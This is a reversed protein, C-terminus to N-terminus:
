YRLSYRLQYYRFPSNEPIVFFEETFDESSIKEFGCDGDQITYWFEGHPSALLDIKVDPRNPTVPIKFTSDNENQDIVLIPNVLPEEFPNATDDWAYHEILFRGDPALGRMPDTDYGSNSATQAFGTQYSAEIRVGDLWAKDQGASGSKDKSYVWALPVYKQNGPIDVTVRTWEVEGSIEELTNGDVQFRLFDRGEESSVKWWFSIKCPAVVYSSVYSLHDDGLNGTEAAFPESYVTNRQGIWAQQGGTHIQPSAYHEIADILPIRVKIQVPIHVEPFSDDVAKLSFLKRHIGLKLFDSNIPLELRSEGNELSILSNEPHSYEGGSLSFAAAEAENNVTLEIAPHNVDPPQQLQVFGPSVQVMPGEYARLQVEARDDQIQTINLIMRSPARAYQGNGAPSGPELMQEEQFLDGKEFIAAENEIESLNDAQVLRVLKVPTTSNDNRLQNTSSNLGAEVHWLAIGNADVQEDAMMIDNGVPHRYEVAMLESFAAEKDQGALDEFLIMAANGTTSIEGSPLLPIDAKDGVVFVEPDIWGLIWRFFANPNIGEGSAMVDFGGVGGMPGMGPAYDYLDPLGLLHGFEHILIRPNYDSKENERSEVWQWSFDVFRVGDLYFNDAETGAFNWQYAWWFSSWPGKDGVWILNLADVIGDGDNDFRSYDIKDDYWILMERTMEWLLEKDDNGSLSKYDEQRGSFHYWGEMQGSVTLRNNSARAYYQRLSEFPMHEQAETTGLGFLNQDVRDVTMGPFRESARNGEFDCLLALVEIEGTSPLGTWEPPILSSVPKFKDGSRRARVERRAQTIKWQAREILKPAMQHNGMREATDLFPGPGLNKGEGPPQLALAQLSSLCVLFIILVRM